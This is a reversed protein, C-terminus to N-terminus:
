NKVASLKKLHCLLAPSFKLSARSQEGQHNEVNVYHHTFVTNNESVVRKISISMRKTHSKIAKMHAIFGYYDLQKGDVIQQYDPAFFAAIQHEDHLPETILTQLAVIVTQKVSPM